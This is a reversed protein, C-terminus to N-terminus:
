NPLPLDTWEHSGTGLQSKDYAKIMPMDSKDNLEENLDFMQFLYYDDGFYCDQSAPAQITDVLGGEKNIVYIYHENYDRLSAASVEAYVYRGDYSIYVSHDCEYFPRSVNLDIDYVFIENGVSYYINKNDIFFSDFDKGELLKELKKSEPNYCVIECKTTQDNYSYIYKCFAAGNKYSTLDGFWLDYDDYTEEYVLEKEANKEIKLRYLQEKREGSYTIYIYGRHCIMNYGIDVGDEFITTYKTRESGDMSIRYLCLSGDTEVLTAYLYGDYYWLENADSVRNDENRWSFLADCNDKRTHNCGERSCVPSAKKTARDFFMLYIDYSPNKAKKYSYDFYYYGKDTSIIKSSYVDFFVQADYDYQISQHPLDESKNSENNSKRGCASVLLAAAFIICIFKRKM